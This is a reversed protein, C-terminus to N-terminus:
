LIKCYFQLKYSGSSDDMLSHALRHPQPRIGRVELALSIYIHALPHRAASSTFGYMYIFTYIYGAAITEM